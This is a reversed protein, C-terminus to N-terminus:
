RAGGQLLRDTFGGTSAGLDLWGRGEVIVDFRALAGDLKDGGRSVFRKVDGVLAIPDSPTVMTAARTAPLGKVTVKGEDIARRAESRSGSLGRRVLETDLRATRLAATWSPRSTTDRRRSRKSGPRTTPTM